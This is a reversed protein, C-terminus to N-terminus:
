IYQNWLFRFGVSRIIADIKKNGCMGIKYMLYSTALIRPDEETSSVTTLSPYSANHILNTTINTGDMSEAWQPQDRYISYFDLASIIKM